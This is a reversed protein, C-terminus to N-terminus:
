PDKCTIERFVATYGFRDEANVDAGNQLLLKAVKLTHENGDRSVCLQLATCGYASKSDVQIM